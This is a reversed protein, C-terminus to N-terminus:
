SHYKRLHYREHLTENVENFAVTTIQVEFPVWNKYAVFQILRLTKGDVSPSMNPKEIYEHDLYGELKESIEWLVLYVDVISEVIIRVGYVDDILFVSEARKLFMKKRLTEPDKVRFVVKPNKVVANAICWLEEALEDISCGIRERYM